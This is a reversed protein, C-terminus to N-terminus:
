SEFDRLDEDGFLYKLEEIFTMKRHHEKQMMIYNRIKDIEHFSVTDASYGKSWQKFLLKPYRKLMISSSRTIDRVYNSVIFTPTARLLIHVHDPMSNIRLVNVGLNKSTEVIFAYLNREIEPIIVHERQHPALVIHYYLRHHPM